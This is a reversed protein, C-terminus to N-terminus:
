LALVVLRQETAPFDPFLVSWLHYFDVIVLQRDSEKGKKRKKEKNIQLFGLIHEALIMLLYDQVM